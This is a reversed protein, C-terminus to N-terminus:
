TTSRRDLEMTRERVGKNTLKQTLTSLQAESLLYHRNPAPLSFTEEEKIAGESALRDAAENGLDEM